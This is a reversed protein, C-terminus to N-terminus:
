LVPEKLEGEDSEAAVEEEAEAQEQSDPYQLINDVGFAEPEEGSPDESFQDAPEALVAIGLINFYIAFEVGEPINSAKQMEKSLNGKKISFLLM